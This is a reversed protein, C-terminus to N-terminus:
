DGDRDRGEARYNPPVLVGFAHAMVHSGLYRTMAPPIAQALEDRNMWDIGMAERCRDANTSPDYRDEPGLATGFFLRRLEEAEPSDDDDAVAMLREWTSQVKLRRHDFPIM